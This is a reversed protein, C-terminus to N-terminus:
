LKNGQAFLCTTFLLIVREYVCMLVHGRTACVSANKMCRFKGYSVRGAFTRNVTISCFANNLDLKIYRATSLTWSSSFLPPKNAQFLVEQATEECMVFLCDIKIINRENREWNGCRVATEQALKLFAADNNYPDM